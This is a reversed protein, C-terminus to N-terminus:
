EEGIAGLAEDVVVDLGGDPGVEGGDGAAFGGKRRLCNRNAPASAGGRDLEVDWVDGGRLPQVGYGLTACRM